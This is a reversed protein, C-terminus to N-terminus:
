NNRNVFCYSFIQCGLAVKEAQKVGPSTFLRFYIANKMKNCINNHVLKFDNWIVNILAINTQTEETYQQINVM